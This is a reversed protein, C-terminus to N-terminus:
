DFKLTQLQVATLYTEYTEIDKRTKRTVTLYIGKSVLYVLLLVIIQALYFM